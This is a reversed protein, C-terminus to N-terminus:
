AEVETGHVTLHTRGERVADLEMAASEVRQSACFLRELYQEVNLLADAKRHWEVGQTAWEKQTFPLWAPCEPAGLPPFVVERLKVSRKERACCACAQVRYNRDTLEQKYGALRARLLQPSIPQPWSHLADELVCERYAQPSLGHAHNLHQEFDGPDDPLGDAPFGFDRSSPAGALDERPSEDASDGDDVDPWLPVSMPPADQAQVLPAPENSSRSESHQGAPFEQFCLRCHQPGLAVPRDAYPPVPGVSPPCPRPLLFLQLAPETGNWVQEKRAAEQQLRERAERLLM